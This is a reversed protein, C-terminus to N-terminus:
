GGRLAEAHHDHCTFFLTQTHQSFERLIAAAAAMRGADFHVLPDDLMVFGGGSKVSAEAMALRVALALAGGAGHSLQEPSVAVADRVVEAPLPGEFGLSASSGTIRSFFGAVQDGFAELPDEDCDEALRDLEERIRLYAKGHALARAFRRKAEDAQEVIEESRRDALVATLRAVEAKHATLHQQAELQRAQAQDLQALLVQPSAFGDPLTPLSALRERVQKVEMKKTLLTEGLRDHDQYSVRWRELAERHQALAAAGEARRTRLVEIEQEITASDRTAPLKEVAEVEAAWAEYAKGGLLAEYIAKKSAAMGTAAQHREALQRAVQPSSVGCATLQEALGMRNAQVDALLGAVDDEGSEVALTVGAVELRVCAEATGAIPEPGIHCTEPPQTGRAISVMNPEVAEIRWSLTRSALKNEAATIARELREIEALRQMGPHPHQEVERLAEDLAARAQTLKAFAAQRVGGESRKRAAAHEAQLSEAQRLFDPQRREWEDLAAEAKPWQAFTKALEAEEGALRAVRDELGSRETLGERLSGYRKAFEAADRGEGELATVRQSEADMQREIALVEQHEAVLTQWAYWAATVTGVGRRWPDAIGKEQGGQREPRARELDWRAFTEDLRVQLRQRLKQEDIDAAASGAARMLDRIDRLEGAHEGVAQLTQELEAQGTFLVHRYTAESHVLLESLRQQVAEPDAIATQGNSLHSRQGAGWRKQLTWADGDCVFSLEIEAHDGGPLPLWPRTLQDFKRSALKTPTFLAHFIAQRLTSKGLENPGHIVVLPESLDWSQDTFRGFPHLRIRSLRIM